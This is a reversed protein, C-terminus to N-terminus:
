RRKGPWHRTTPPRTSSQGQYSRSPDGPPLNLEAQAVRGPKPICVHSETRPRGGDASATLLVVDATWTQERGDPRDRALRYVARDCGPCTVRTVRYSRGRSILIGVETPRDM